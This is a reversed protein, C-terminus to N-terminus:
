REKEVQLHGYCALAAPLDLVLGLSGPHLQGYVVLTHQLPCVNWPIFRLYYLM